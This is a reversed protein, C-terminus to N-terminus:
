SSRSMLRQAASAAPNERRRFRESLRAMIADAQEHLENHDLKSYHRLGENYVSARAIAATADAVSSAFREQGERELRGGFAAVEDDSAGTWPGAGTIFNRRSESIAVAAIAEHFVEDIKARRQTRVNVWYAILGGVLLTLFPLVTDLPSM